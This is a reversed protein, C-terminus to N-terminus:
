YNVDINLYLFLTTLYPLFCIYSSFYSICLPTISSSSVSLTSPEAQLSQAPGIRQSHETGGTPVSSARYASLARNRRYPSLQGSVSLTSPEAQLSQAPGIRQSHETGGTPVSSARYTSLARNRRYPSLQGSVSLTSPEAQLSQAPGIRQAHSPDPPLSKIETIGEM